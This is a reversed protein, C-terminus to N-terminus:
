CWRRCASRMPRSCRAPGRAAAEDFAGRKFLAAMVLDPMALFAVLFPATLALTFGVTRNQAQM